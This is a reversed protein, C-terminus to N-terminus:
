DFHEEQQLTSFHLGILKKECEELSLCDEEIQFNIQDCEEFIRALLHNINVIAASNLKEERSLVISATAASIM